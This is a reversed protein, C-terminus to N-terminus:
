RSDHDLPPRAPTFGGAPTSARMCEVDGPVVDAHLLSHRVFLQLELRGVAGAGDVGIMRVAVSRPTMTNTSERTIEFDYPRVSRSASGGARRTM